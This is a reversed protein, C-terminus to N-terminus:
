EDTTNPVHALEFWRHRFGDETVRVIRLGSHRADAVVPPSGVVKAFDPFPQPAIEAAPLSWNIVGGCRRVSARVMTPLLASTVSAALDCVCVCVCLVCLVYLVLVTDSSCAGRAAHHGAHASPRYSSRMNRCRSLKPPRPPCARHRVVLHDRGRHRPLFTRHRQWSLAGLALAQRGCGGGLHPVDPAGRPGLEGLRLGTRPAPMHTASLPRARHSLSLAHTLALSRLPRPPLMPLSPTGVESEDGVFPPVHSLVVVHKAGLSRATRFTEEAWEDQAQRLHEVGAVHVGGSAARTSSASGLSHSAMGSLALGHSAMALGHRPWTLGHRPWALDHSARRRWVWPHSAMGDLGHQWGPALGM